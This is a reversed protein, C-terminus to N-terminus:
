ITCLHHALSYIGLELALPNFLFICMSRDWTYQTHYTTLVGVIMEFLGTNTWCICLMNTLLYRNRIASSCTEVKVCWGCTTEYPTHQLHPGIACHNLHQAVFRFTEPEIGSPTMPIKWECLGESWVIARPGVWGRVSILVPLIEQPFLPRHTLSVVKGGVQAM